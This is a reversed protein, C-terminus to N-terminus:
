TIELWNSIMKLIDSDSRNTDDFGPTDVFIINHGPFSMKIMSIESTCSQLDHGVGADIGTAVSIFQGGTLFPM